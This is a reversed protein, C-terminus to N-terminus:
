AVPGGHGGGGDRLAQADAVVGDFGDLGAMVFEEGALLKLGGPQRDGAEFAERECRVRGFGGPAPSIRAHELGQRKGAAAADNAGIRGQLELLGEFADPFQQVVLGAEQM